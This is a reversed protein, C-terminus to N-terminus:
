TRRTRLKREVAQWQDKKPMYMLFLILSLVLLFYFDRTIGTLLFFVLGLLAPIECLAATTIGAAQLRELAKDPHGQVARRTLSNYFRRVAFVVVVAGAYFFYRLAPDHGGKLFGPSPSNQLVLVLVLYVALGAMLALHFIMAKRFSQLSDETLAM